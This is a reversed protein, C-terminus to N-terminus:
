LFEVLNNKRAKISIPLWINNEWLTPMLAVPALGFPEAISSINDFSLPNSIGRISSALELSLKVM